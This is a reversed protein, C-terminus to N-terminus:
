AISICHEIKKLLISICGRTSSSPNPPRGHSLDGSLEEASALAGSRRQKHITEHGHFISLTLLSKIELASLVTGPECCTKHFHKSLLSVYMYPVFFLLVYM